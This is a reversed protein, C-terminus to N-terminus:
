AGVREEHMALLMKPGGLPITYVWKVGPLDIIGKSRLHEMLGTLAAAQTAGSAVWIRLLTDSGYGGHTGVLYQM